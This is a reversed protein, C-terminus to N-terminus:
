NKNEEFEELMRVLEHSAKAMYHSDLKIQEPGRHPYSMLQYEALYMEFLTDGKVVLIASLGGCHDCWWKVEPEQTMTDIRSEFAYTIFDPGNQLQYEAFQWEGDTFREYNLDAKYLSNHDGGPYIWYRNNCVGTDCLSLESCHLFLITDSINRVRDWADAIQEGRKYLRKTRKKRAYHDRIRICSSLILIVVVTYIFSKKVNLM